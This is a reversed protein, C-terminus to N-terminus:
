GRVFEKPAHRCRCSVIAKGERHFSVQVLLHGFGLKSFCIFLYVVIMDFQFPSSFPTNLPFCLVFAFCFCFVKSEGQFSERFAEVFQQKTIARVFHIL